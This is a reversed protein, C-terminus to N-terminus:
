RAMVVHTRPFRDHWPRESFFSFPEFPIFRCFTRGVVQGLSPRGGDENVVVTGCIWKGPTRGWLGEFFVYYSIMIAFAIVQIWLGMRNMALLGERGFLLGVAMGLAMCILLFCFYDILYTFLRRWNSALQIDRPAEPADVASRPAQYPNTTVNM